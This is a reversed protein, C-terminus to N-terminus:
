IKANEKLGDVINVMHLFQYALKIVLLVTVIQIRLITLNLASGKQFQYKIQYILSFRQKIRNGYM